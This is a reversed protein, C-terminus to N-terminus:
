RGFSAHFRKAGAATSAAHPVQDREEDRKGEGGLRNRLFTDDRVQLVRGDETRWQLSSRARRSGGRRGGAM